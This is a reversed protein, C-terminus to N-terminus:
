AADYAAQLGKADMKGMGLMADFVAAVKELHLDSTLRLFAAPVIRWTVGFQDDMWGCRSPRGGDERASWSRDVEGQGRGAVFFSTAPSFRCQPGGNLGLFQQGALTSSGGMRNPGDIRSDRFLSVYFRAAEGCNGDFWLFPTVSRVASSSRM